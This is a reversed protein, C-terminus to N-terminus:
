EEAKSKIVAEPFVEEFKCLKTTESIDGDSDFEFVFDEGEYNHFLSARGKLGLSKGLAAVKGRLEHTAKKLKSLEKVSVAIQDLTEKAEVRDM